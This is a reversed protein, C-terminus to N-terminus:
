LSVERADEDYEFDVIEFDSGASRFRINWKRYEKGAFACNVMGVRADRKRLKPAIEDLFREMLFMTDDGDLRAKAELGKEKPM